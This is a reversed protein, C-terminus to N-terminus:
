ISFILICFIFAGVLYTAKDKIAFAIPDDDLNGRYVLIWTRSVWYLLAPTILWLYNNNHYLELVIPSNLYLAFVLVSLLSSSVGIIAIMAQDETQYARSNQKSSAAHKKLEAFRKIFALGLFFFVSFTLLWPSIPIETMLGGFVIRLNYMLALLIVDILLLSKLKFTYLLNLIFYSLLLFGSSPDCNFTIFFALISFFAVSIIGVPIGLDGSAWPRHRKKVHLRDASLVFLDNLIYVSSAIFSFLVFALCSQAVVMKDNFKHALLLPAFVLINKVWQHARIGKLYTKIFNIKSSILVIPKNPNQNKVQSILSTSAQVLYATQSEKWIPLDVISDGVYSWQYHKLREKIFNVKNIGRLNINTTGHAEDFIGLHTAIKKVEADVSASVLIVKKGESQLKQAFGLVDINYPLTAPDIPATKHLYYKLAVRGNPDTL